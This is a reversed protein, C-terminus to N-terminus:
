PISGCGPPPVTLTLPSSDPPSTVITTRFGDRFFAGIPFAILERQSVDALTERQYPSRADDFRPAKSILVDHCQSERM